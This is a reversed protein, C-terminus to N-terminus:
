WPFYDSQILAQTARGMCVTGPKADLCGKFGEKKDQAFAERVKLYESRAKPRLKKYALIQDVFAIGGTSDGIHDYLRIIADTYQTSGFWYHRPPLSNKYKEKLYLIHNYVPQNSRTKRAEILAIFEQRWDVYPEHARHEERLYELEELAQEYEGQKQHVAIISAFPRGRDSGDLM